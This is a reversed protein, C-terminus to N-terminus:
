TAVRFPQRAQYSLSRWVWEFPGFQYHKLWWSSLPIQVAIIALVLLIQPARAIEGYMGGAYGYFVSTLIISHMLYNTLAMRGMPALKLLLNQWKPSDLLRIIAGLYGAAMFYQGLNFLVHAVSQLAINHEVSPQDLIMLASVNFVLGVGLGIKAMYSFLIPHNAHDKIAGTIVLWYGLLFIPVLISLAFVPSFFLWVWATKIRFAVADWYSGQGLALAEQQGEQIQQQEQDYIEQAQQQLTLPFEINKDETQNAGTTQKDAQQAQIEQPSLELEAQPQASLTSLQTETKTNKQLELEGVLARIEQSEAWQETLAQRDFIVSFGIGALTALLMPISIWWLAIKLISKPNNYAKFRESGLLYIIGLMILGAIAYDHLIDGQWLLFMHLLGLVYLVLMRRVFWGTFPRNKAQAQLLMVAVGMGFLLAFLKYFKGEVFCRVLWAIAHDIGSLEPDNLGLMLIPRSFWEINMFLIGILAFARLIDLASIRKEAAVPQLTQPHSHSLQDQTPSDMSM